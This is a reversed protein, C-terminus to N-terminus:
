ASPSTGTTPNVRGLAMFEEHSLGLRERFLGLHEEVLDATFRDHGAEVPTHTTFVTYQAVRRLARHFPIQDYDMIRRIEELIAFSSHGENLHLVGPFINLGQLIRAGGIGLLLEQRIRVSIDGGYLRSTLERDETSNGEVNSDLLMLSIRGVQLKWVRALLPTTRTDIRVVLQNGEQDLVPM